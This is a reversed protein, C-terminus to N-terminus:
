NKKTTLSTVAIFWLHFILICQLPFFRLFIASRGQTLSFPSVRALRFGSKDPRDNSPPGASATHSQPVLSLGQQRTLGGVNQMRCEADLNIAITYRTCDTTHVCTECVCEFVCCLGVVASHLRLRCWGERLGCECEYQVYTGSGGPRTLSM